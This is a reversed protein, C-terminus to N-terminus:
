AEGGSQRFAADCGLNGHYLGNLMAEELAIGVRTTDAEDCLRLCGLQEQLYPVLASILSPENALCFGSEVETLSQLLRRQGRNRNAAALVRRLTPMLEHPLSRKAVYSAAGSRLAQMAVEESGYATMLVVPILPHRERVWEVLELGGMKPMLMDTLVANPPENELMPLAEAGDSAYVARWSLRKEVIAGALRRDFPNDDVILVTAEIVAAPMTSKSESPVRMPTVALHTM